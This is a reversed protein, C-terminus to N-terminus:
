HPGSYLPHNQSPGPQLKARAAPRKQATLITKGATVGGTGKPGYRSAQVGEWSERLGDGQELEEGHLIEYKGLIQKAPLSLVQDM